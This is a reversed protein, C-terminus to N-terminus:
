KKVSFKCKASHLSYNICKFTNQFIMIRFERRTPFHSGKDHWINQDRFSDNWSFPVSSPAKLYQSIDRSVQCYFMKLVCLVCLSLKHADALLYVWFIMSFNSEVSVITRALMWGYWVLGPVSGLVKHAITGKGSPKLHPQMWCIYKLRIVQM